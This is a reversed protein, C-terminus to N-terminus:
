KNKKTGIKKEIQQVKKLRDYNGIGMYLMYAGAFILLLVAVTKHTSEDFIDKSVFYSLMCILNIAAAETAYIIKDQRLGNLKTKDDM